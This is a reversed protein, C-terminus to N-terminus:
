KKNGYYNELWETAIEQLYTSDSYPYVDDYVIDKGKEITLLYAQQNDFKRAFLYANPLSHTIFGHEYFGNNEDGFYIAYYINSKEINKDVETNTASTDGGDFSPYSKKGISLLSKGFGYENDYKLLNKETIKDGDVVADEPFPFVRGEFVWYLDNVKEFEQSHYKMEMSTGKKPLNLTWGRKTGLSTGSKLYGYSYYKPEKFNTKGDEDIITDDSYDRLLTAKQNFKQSYSHAVYPIFGNYKITLKSDISGGDKYHSIMPKGYRLHDKIQKKEQHTFDSLSVKSGKGSEDEYLNMTDEDIYWNFNNVVVPKLKIIGGNNFKSCRKPMWDLDIFYATQKYEVGDDILEKNDTSVIKKSVIIRDSKFQEAHILEESFDFAKGIGRSLESTNVYWNGKEIKDDNVLYFNNNIKFVNYKVGGGDKMEDNYSLVVADNIIKDIAQPNIKEYLSRGNNNGYAVTNLEQLLGKVRKRTMNGSGSHWIINETKMLSVGNYILSKKLDVNKIIGIKNYKNTPINKKTEIDILMIKNGDVGYVVDIGMGNLDTLLLKWEETRDWYFHNKNRVENLAFLIVSARKIKGEVEGGDKMEVNGYKVILKEIVRMRVELDEKLEPKKAIMKKIVDLRLKLDEVSPTAKEGDPETGKQNLSNTLFQKKNLDFYIMGHPMETEVSKVAVRIGSEEFCLFSQVNESIYVGHECISIQPMDMDMQIGAKLADIMDDLAVVLLLDNNKLYVMPYSEKFNKFAKATYAKTMDVFMQGLEDHTFLSTIKDSIKRENGYLAMYNKFFSIANKDKNMSLRKTGYTPMIDKAMNSMGYIGEEIGFATLYGKKAKVFIDLSSKSAFAGMRSFYVGVLSSLTKEKKVFSDLLIALNKDKPNVEYHLETTFDENSFNDPILDFINNLKKTPTGFVIESDIVNDIFSAVKADDYHAKNYIGFLLMDKKQEQSLYRRQMELWTPTFFINDVVVKSFMESFHNLMEKRLFSEVESPVGESITKQIHQIKDIIPRAILLAREDAPLNDQERQKQEVAETYEVGNKYDSADVQEMIQESKLLVDYYYPNEILHDKVIEGMKLKDKTHEREVKIGKKFQKIVEEVPVNHMNAIDFITKSDAFGGVLGEVEKNKESIAKEIISEPIEYGASEIVFAVKNASVIGDNILKDYTGEEIANHILQSYRMDSLHLMESREFLYPYKLKDISEEKSQTTNWLAHIDPNLDGYTNEIKLLSLDLGKLIRVAREPTMDGKSVAENYKGNILAVTIVKKAFLTLAENDDGSEVKVSYTSEKGESLYKFVYTGDARKTFPFLKLEDVTYCWADKTEDVKSLEVKEEFFVGRFIANLEEQTLVRNFVFAKKHGSWYGGRKEVQNNVMKFRDYIKNKLELIYEETEIDSQVLKYDANDIITNSEMTTKEQTTIKGGNVLHINDDSSYENSNDDTKVVDDYIPIGFEETLPDIYRIGKNKLWLRVVKRAELEGDDSYYFFDTLQVENLSNLFILNNKEEITLCKAKENARLTYIRANARKNAEIKSIGTPRNHVAQLVHQIEHLLISERSLDPENSEITKFEKGNENEWYYKFNLTIKIVIESFNNVINLTLPLEIEGKNEDGNEFIVKIKGIGKYKEFLVVHNILYELECPTNSKYLSYLTVANYKWSYHTDDIEYYKDDAIKGGFLYRIDPNNGDFTTNAGDALKIQNSKFVKINLWDNEKMFVADYNKEFYKEISPIEIVGWEGNKINIVDLNFQHKNKQYYPIKSLIKIINEFNDINRFDFIKRANLFCSYMKTRVKSKYFGEKTSFDYGLPTHKKGEVIDIFSSHKIKDFITFNSQSYHYVVLPEGNDDLVKSSNKPDNQWDGFWNKFAPTRVLRYQEPTLNSPKGNPSLLVESKM